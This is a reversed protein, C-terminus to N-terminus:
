DLSEPSPFLDCPPLDFWVAVAAGRADLGALLLRLGGTHRCPYFDSGVDEKGLRRARSKSIGRGPTTPLYIVREDRREGTSLADLARVSFYM